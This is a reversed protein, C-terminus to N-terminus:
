RRALARIRRVQAAREAARQADYERETAGRILAKTEILADRDAALLEHVLIQAQVLLDATPVVRNALGIREAEPADIWRGTACIELARGYGVLDTLPKTGGLDPVLGLSIERMAFRADEAVIRLDCALALQFGAGIAHGQVAAVSILDPRRWWTYAEQFAEITLEADVPDSSALDILTKTKGRAGDAQDEGVLVSRDLGASFSPGEARLLVARVSGPLARGMEALQWWMTPTMANRKAPRNLVITAVEGEVTLGLGAKAAAAQREAPWFDYVPAPESGFESPSADARLDDIRPEM